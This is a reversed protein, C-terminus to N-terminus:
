CTAITPIRGTAPTSPYRPGLIKSNESWGRGSRVSRGSRASECAITRSRHDPTPAPFYCASPIRGQPWPLPTEVPGCARPLSDAARPLPPGPPSLRPDRARSPNDSAARSARCPRGPRPPATWGRDMGRGHGPTSASDAKRFDWLGNRSSDVRDVGIEDFSYVPLPVACAALGELSTPHDPVTPTSLPGFDANRFGWPRNGTWGQADLGPRRRPRSSPM